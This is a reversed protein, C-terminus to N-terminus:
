VAAIALHWNRGRKAGKHAQGSTYPLPTQPAPIKSSCVVKTKLMEEEKRRKRMRKHLALSQFQVWVLYKALARGRAVMCKRQEKLTKIQLPPQSQVQSGGAESEWNSPNWALRSLFSSLTWAPKTEETFCPFLLWWQIMDVVLAHSGATCHCSLTPKARLLVGLNVGGSYSPRLAPEAALQM